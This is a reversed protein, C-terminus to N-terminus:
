SPLLHFLTHAPQLPPIVFKMRIDVKLALLITTPSPLIIPIEVRFTQSRSSGGYYINYGAISPDTNADWALTVQASNVDPSPLALCISATLFIIIPLRFLPTLFVSSVFKAIKSV